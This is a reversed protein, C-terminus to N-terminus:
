SQRQRSRLFLRRVIFVDIVLAIAIGGMLFYAENSLSNFKTKKLADYLTISYKVILYSSAGLFFLLFFDISKKVM